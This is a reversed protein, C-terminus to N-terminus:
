VQPQFRSQHHLHPTPHTIPMRNLFSVPDVRSKPAELYMQGEVRSDCCRLKGSLAAELRTKGM